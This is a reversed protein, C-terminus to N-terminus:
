ARCDHADVPSIFALSAHHIQQRLLIVDHHAILAAPVGAMGHDVRIPLKGQVQKWAANEARAHHIDQAVTHGQIRFAQDALDPIHGGLPHGHGRLIQLDAFAGGQQQGPM